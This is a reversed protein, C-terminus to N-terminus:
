DGTIAAREGAVDSKRLPQRERRAVQQRGNDIRVFLTARGWAGPQELIVGADDFGAVTTHEGLRDGERVLRLEGDPSRAVAVRDAASIQVIRWGDLDAAALTPMPFGLLLLPLLWFKMFPLGKRVSIKM